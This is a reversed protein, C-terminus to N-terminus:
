PCEMQVIKYRDDKIWRALGTAGTTGSFTQALNELKVTGAACIGEGINTVVTGDVEADTTALDDALTFEIWPAFPYKVQMTQSLQHRAAFHEPLSIARTHYFRPCHKQLQVGDDLNAVSYVPEHEVGLTFM